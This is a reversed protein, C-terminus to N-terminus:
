SLPHEPTLPVTTTQPIQQATQRSARKLYVFITCFTLLLMWESITVTWAVAQSSVGAYIAYVVISVIAVVALISNVLHEKGAALLFGELTTKLFLAGFGVALIQLIAVSESYKFTLNMLFPAGFFLFASCLAAAAIALLIVYRIRASPSNRQSYEPIITNLVAGPVIRLSSFFRSAAAYVGHQADTAFWGLMISPMRVLASSLLNTLTVGRQEYFANNLIASDWFPTSPTFRFVERVPLSRDTVASFFSLLHLLKLSDACLIILAFLWFPLHLYILPICPLIALLNYVTNIQASKAAYQLGRLSCLLAYALATPVVDLAFITTTLITQADKVFSCAVAIPLILSALVIKVRLAEFTRRYASHPERSISRPLTIDFGADIITQAFGNLALAFSFQGLSASGYERGFLVIFVANAVLGVGDAM